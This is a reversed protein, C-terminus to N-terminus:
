IGEISLSSFGEMDDSDNRCFIFDGPHPKGAFVVLLILFLGALFAEKDLRYHDIMTVTSIENNRYSIAVFATDGPSFIKDQELSGRLCNIADAEQGKFIGDLIRIRCRQEGTRILGTDIIDSEDTSLVEVKVRDANQYTLAGEFGTPLIMLFLLLIFATLVPFVSSKTQFLRSLKM